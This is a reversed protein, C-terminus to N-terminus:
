KMMEEVEEDLMLAERLTLHIEAHKEQYSYLGLVGKQRLIIAKSQYQTVAPGYQYCDNREGYLQRRWENFFIGEPVEIKINKLFIWELAM